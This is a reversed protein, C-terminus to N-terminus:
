DDAFSFMRVGARFPRASAPNLRNMGVRFSADRPATFALESFGDERFWMRVETSPDGTPGRGRTWVVLGGPATLTRLGAVTRQGDAASINGFVGCALVLHAPAIREYATTTGADGNVVDVHTLNLQRARRRAQEALHPDLEVLLARVGVPQTREALVPLLDRSEGACLSIVRLEGLDPRPTILDLARHIHHQVVLLRRALSSEPNNYGQHWDLWARAM